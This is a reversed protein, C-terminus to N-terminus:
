LRGTAINIPFSLLSGLQYLPVRSQLLLEEGDMVKANVMAPKRYLVSGKSAAVMEEKAPSDGASLQLELVIPRGSLDSTPIVGRRESFRFAIYLQQEREAMPVVDFTSRKTSYSSSGLFLSLYREELRNIEEIAARLADGSFTADTDGTIINLRKERLTFIKDAVEQAKREESKEVIHSQEVAVREITAGSKQTTYLTSKESVLNSSSAARLLQSNDALNPYRVKQNVGGFSDSWLILGQNIMELFNASANRQNGLQLAINISPDAELYPILEISSLQYEVGSEERGEVGLYKKAYRAYPGAVFSHEVSEVILHITTIPLSYVIAGAPVKEGPNLLQASAREGTSLAIVILLVVKFITELIRKKM